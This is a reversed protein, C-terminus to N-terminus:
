NSGGVVNLVHSVVQMCAHDIPAQIECGAANVHGGGGFKEAIVSVDINGKSRFSVKTLNPGIEKFVLAVKVGKISQMAETIEESESMAANAVELMQQTICTWAVKGECEYRIDNLALALLKVTTPPMSKYVQEAVGVVDAGYKALRAAAELVQANTNSHRFSGTDTYAAAYLNTAISPTIEYGLLELFDLVIEATAARWPEVLNIDGFMTNSHHHDVNIVISASDVYVSEKGVRDVNASDFFFLAYGTPVAVGNNNIVHWNPLFEYVKPLPEPVVIAAKKNKQNLAEWFALSCGLTDGDPDKHGLIVFHESQDIVRAIEKATKEFEM